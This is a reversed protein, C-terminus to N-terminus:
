FRILTGLYVTNSEYNDIGLVAKYGLNLSWTDSLYYQLEAGADFSDRNDSDDMYDSADYNWIGFINLAANEGARIGINAGTKILHQYDFESDTDDTSYQYSVVVSPELTEGGTYTLSFSPGGGLITVNTETDAFMWNLNATLGMNFDEALPMSYQIFGIVGIRNIEGSDLGVNDYPVVFGYSINDVDWALGVSVGVIDTKDDDPGATEYRAYGAIVRPYDTRGEAEEKVEEKAAETEARPQVTPMVVHQFTQEAVTATTDERLGEPTSIDYSTPCEIPYGDRDYCEEYAASASQPLVLALSLILAVFYWKTINRKTM